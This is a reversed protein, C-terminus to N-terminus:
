DMQERLAKAKAQYFRSSANNGANEFRKAAEEAAAAAKDFASIVSQRDQSQVVRGHEFRGAIYGDEQDIAGSKLEGNTVLGFFLRKVDKGSYEKLVGLGDAVGAHCAGDWRVASQVWGQPPSVACASQSQAEAVCLALVFGVILWGIEKNQV